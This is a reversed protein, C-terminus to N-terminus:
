PTINDGGGHRWALLLFRLVGSNPVILLHPVSPLGAERRAPCANDQPPRRQRPKIARRSIKQNQSAAQPARAQDACDSGMTSPVTTPSFPGMAFALTPWCPWASRTV